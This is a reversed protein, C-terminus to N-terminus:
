GFINIETDFNDKEYQEIASLEYLITGNRGPKKKFLPGKGEYRMQALTQVKMKWRDALEQTSLYKM